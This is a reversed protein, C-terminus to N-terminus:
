GRAKGPGFRRALREAVPRPVLGSVDGGLQVIERVLRSSIFSVEEGATLFLTELRPNLRRNMLAMQLEYEVDSVARLGRVIVRAGVQRAFDSLLGDFSAVEVRQLGAERVAEEIMARREEAGFMPTKATNELVAVVLSGFLDSARRILDLHGMTVPDFSGPYVAKM